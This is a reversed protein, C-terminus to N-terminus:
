IWSTARPGAGTATLGSYALALGLACTALIAEIIHGVKM